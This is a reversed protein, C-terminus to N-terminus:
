RIRDITGRMIHLPVVRFAKAVTSVQKHPFDFYSKLVDFVAGITDAVLAPFINRDLTEFGPRYCAMTDITFGPHLIVLAENTSLNWPNPGGSSKQQLAPHKPLL